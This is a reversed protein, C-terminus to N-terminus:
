TIDDVDASASDRLIEEIEADFEEKSNIRPKDATVDIQEMEGLRIQIEEIAGQEDDTNEDAAALGSALGLAAVIPIIQIKM